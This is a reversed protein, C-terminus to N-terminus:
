TYLDLVRQIHPPFKSSSGYVPENSLTAGRMSRSEKWEEKLYYTVMDITVQKLDAPIVLAGPASGYTYTISVAGYGQPWVSNKGIRYLVGDELDARYLTSAVPFHVTSDYYYPDIGTVSVVENIPYHDLYLETADYDLDFTDTRTQIGDSHFSQGIYKQILASVSAILGELIIDQDSKTIGKALKYDDLTILNM